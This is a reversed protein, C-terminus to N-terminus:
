TQYAMTHPRDSLAMWEINQEKGCTNIKPPARGARRSKEGGQLENPRARAVYGSSQMLEVMLWLQVRMASFQEYRGPPSWRITYSDHRMAATVTKEM